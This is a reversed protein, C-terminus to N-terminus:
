LSFLVLSRIAFGMNTLMSAANATSGGACPHILAGAAPKLRSEVLKALAQPDGAAEIRKFGLRALEGATIASDAFVPFTRVGIRAALARAATPGVVLFGQAGSLDVKPPEVTQVTILPVAVPVHGNAVLAEALRQADDALEPILVRM